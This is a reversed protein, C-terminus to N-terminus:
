SAVQKNHPINLTTNCTKCWIKLRVQNDGKKPDRSFVNWCLNEEECNSIPGTLLISIKKFM